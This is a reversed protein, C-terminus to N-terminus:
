EGTGAMEAPFLSDFIGEGEKPGGLADVSKRM